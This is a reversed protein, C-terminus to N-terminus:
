KDCVLTAYHGDQFNEYLLELMKTIKKMKPENETHKKAIDCASKNICKSCNYMAKQCYQTGKSLYGYKKIWIKRAIIKNARIEQWPYLYDNLYKEFHIKFEEFDKIALCFHKQYGRRSIYRPCPVDIYTKKVLTRIDFYWYGKEYDRIIRRYYHLYDKECGMIKHIGYRLSCKMTIGGQKEKLEM